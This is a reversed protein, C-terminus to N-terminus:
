KIMVYYIVIHYYLIDKWISKTKVIHRHKYMYIYHMLAPLAALFIINLICNKKIIKQNKFIKPVSFIIM